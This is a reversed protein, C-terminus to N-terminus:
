WPVGLLFRLIGIVVGIAVWVLLLRTLRRHQDRFIAGNQTLHRKQWLCSFVFLKPGQYESVINFTIYLTVLAIVTFVTTWVLTLVSFLDHVFNFGGATEM